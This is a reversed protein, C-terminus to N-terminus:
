ARQSRTPITFVHKYGSFPLLSVFFELGVQLLIIDLCLLANTGNSTDVLASLYFSTSNGSGCVDVAFTVTDKFLYGLLPVIVCLMVGLLFKDIKTLKMERIEAVDELLCKLNYQRYFTFMMITSYMLVYGYYLVVYAEHFHKMERHRIMFGMTVVCIIVYNIICITNIVYAASRNRLQGLRCGFLGFSFLIGAPLSLVGYRQVTSKLEM